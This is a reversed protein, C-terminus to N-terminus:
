IVPVRALDTVDIDTAVLLQEFAEAGNAEAYARESESIPVAQLWAVQTDGITLPRPGGAWSFPPMFYFHALTSSLGYLPLVNPAVAGWRLPWGQGAIHLAATGIARSYDAADTRFAAVIQLRTAGHGLDHDALNVTGLSGVGGGPTEACIAIDIQLDDGENRCGVFTPSAAFTDALEQASAHALDSVTV